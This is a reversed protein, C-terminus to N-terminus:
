LTFTNFSREPLDVNLYRNGIKVKLNKTEDSDNITVLITKGDPTKFALMNNNKGQIELKVSGPTVFYSLHKFIYFEPTYTVKKTAKDIIVQANQKWGWSSQGTNDLIMNWYMYSKIGKDLYSKISEFTDEAAKWDFTGSGCPTETEMLNLQPYKKGISIAANQGEYQLGVGSIFKLNKPKSFVTDFVAMDGNNITGLWIQAPVKDDSFKPGLYDAIFDRISQATWSCNPWQNYTYPENQVDVAYVNIGEQHYAKVFKDLYLAYASLYKEKQIFQDGSKVANAETLDNYPGPKNAYYKNTKMWTPPSWPSAWLKLDPRFKMATKIYPILTSKDREISFNKMEFDGDTEDLSYWSYAYDNAGIPIRCINYKLGENPDFFEKIVKEREKIPLTMLAGWGLENFCGGWGDITQQKHDTLVELDFQDTAKIDNLSLPPKKIWRNQDTSSIWSVSQSFGNIANLLIFAVGLLVIKNKM